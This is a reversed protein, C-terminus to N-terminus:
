NKIQITLKEELIKKVFEKTFNCKYAKQQDSLLLRDSICGGACHWKAFCTNCENQKERAINLVRKVKTDDIYIAGDINGFNFANFADEKNSSVRHCSVLDGTPTICFEGRCFNTKLYNVSNSISNYIEIGRERGTKRAEFFNIIFDNYFNLDNDLIDTVQEFHLRKINKYNESVFIVMEKMLGVNKRTITSRLSYPINNKTLKQITHNVDDFSNLKPNAYGRQINQIEPLIEFSIGIYVKHEKIFKIKEDSLLTGNTTISIRVKQNKGKSTDIYNIAWKLLDWTLTPEGGGIFSFKKVNNDNSLSLTYDIAQKLRDRDLIEKSRSEQAYCYSCSLNCIQSLIVVLNGDMNIGTEKPRQPQIAELKRLYEWVTTSREEISLEKGEIYKQVVVVANENAFFAVNRLPAYVINNNGQLPIIFLDKNLEM